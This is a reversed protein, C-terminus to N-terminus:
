AVKNKEETSLIKFKWPQRNHASPAKIGMKIGERLISEDIVEDSYVRISRRKLITDVTEM